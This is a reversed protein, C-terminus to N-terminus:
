RRVREQINIVETYTQQWPASKVSFNFFQCVVGGSLMPHNEIEKHCYLRIKKRHLHVM